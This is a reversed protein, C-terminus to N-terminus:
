NSVTVEITLQEDDGGGTPAASVLNANANGGSTGQGASAATQSKLVGRGRLARDIASLAATIEQDTFAITM